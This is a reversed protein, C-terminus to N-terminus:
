FIIFVSIFVNIVSIILALITAINNNRILQNRKEEKEFQAARSLFILMVAVIFQFILSIAICVLIIISLAKWYKDKEAQTIITKLQSFNTTVLAINLFGTAYTKKTAYSTFQRSINSLNHAQNSAFDIIGGTKQANEKTYDESDNDNNKYKKNKTSNRNNIKDLEIDEFSNKEKQVQITSVQSNPPNRQASNISNHSYYSM